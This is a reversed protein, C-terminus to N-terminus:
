RQISHTSSSNRGQTAQRRQKSPVIMKTFLRGRFNKKDTDEFSPPDDEDGGRFAKIFPKYQYYKPSSDLRFHLWAVGLGSTSLWVPENNGFSRRLKRLYEHALKGFVRDVQKEPAERVFKALHSYSRLDPSINAPPPRPAILRADKGLNDFAVGYPDGRTKFHGAFSQQDVGRKGFEHLAPSNILVFSFQLKKAGKLNVGTTELLM